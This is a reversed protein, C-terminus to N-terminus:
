VPHGPRRSVLWTEVANQLVILEDTTVDANADEDCLGAYMNADVYDHLDSFTRVPGVVATEIDEAIELLMQEAVSRLRPTLEDIAAAWEPSTLWARADDMASVTTRDQM